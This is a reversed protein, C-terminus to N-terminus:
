FSHRQAVIQTQMLSLYLRRYMALHIAHILQLMNLSRGHLQENPNASLFNWDIKEPYRELLHIANPNSALRSWWIQDPHTDLLSIANVNGSLADWQDSMKDPFRLKFVPKM